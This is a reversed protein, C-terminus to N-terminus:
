AEHWRMSKGSAVASGTAMGAQIGVRLVFHRRGFEGGDPADQGGEHGREIFVFSDVLPAGAGDDIEEDTAADVAEIDGAAGAFGEHHRRVLALTHEFHHRVLDLSADWDNGMDPRDAGMEGDIEGTM